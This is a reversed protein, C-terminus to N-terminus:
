DCGLAQNRALLAHVRCRCHVRPMKAATASQPQTAAIVTIRASRRRGVPTATGSEVGNRPRVPRQPDIMEPTNTPVTVSDFEAQALDFAETSLMVRVAGAATLGRATPTDREEAARCALVSAQERLDPLAGAIRLWAIAAQIHLLVALDLLEVVDRGAAVTTHLDRILIPLERGTLEQDGVSGAGVLAGVQERLADMPLVDGGPDRHNVAMLALRIAEIASDTHANGPAPVPLRALESPSIQLANALAV